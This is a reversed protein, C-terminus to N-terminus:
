AAIGDAPKAAIGTHAHQVTARVAAHKGALSDNLESM